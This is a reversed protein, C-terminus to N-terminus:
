PMQTMLNRNAANAYSVSCTHPEEPDYLHGCVTCKVNESKVDIDPLWWSGNEYTYNQASLSSTNGINMIPLLTLLFLTLLLIKKM